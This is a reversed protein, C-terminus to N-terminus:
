EAEKVPMLLYGSVQYEEPVNAWLEPWSGADFSKIIRGTERETLKWSAM